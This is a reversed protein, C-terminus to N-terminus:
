LGGQYPGILGRIVGTYVARAIWPSVLFYWVALGIIVKVFLPIYHDKM